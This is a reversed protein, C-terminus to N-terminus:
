ENRDRKTEGYDENSKGVLWQEVNESAKVHPARDQGPNKEDQSLLLIVHPRLIGKERVLRALNEAHRRLPCTFTDRGM